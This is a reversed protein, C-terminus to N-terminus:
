NIEPILSYRKKTDISILNFISFIIFVLTSFVMLVQGSIIYSFGFQARSCEDEIFKGCFKQDFLSVCTSDQISSLSQCYSLRHSTQNKMYIMIGITADLVFFAVSVFVISLKIPFTSNIINSFASFICTLSALSAGFWIIPMSWDKSADYQYFQFLGFGLLGFGTLQVALILLFSYWSHIAKFKSYYTIETVIWRMKNNNNNNTVCISVVTNYQSIPYNNNNSKNNNKYDGSEINFIKNEKLLEEETGSLIKKNLKESFSNLQSNTMKLVICSEHVKKFYNEPEKTFMSFILFLTSMDKTFQIGDKFTFKFSSEILLKFIHNDIKLSLKRWLSPLKNSCLCRSIVGLQFRLTSLADVIEHSIDLHSSEKEVNREFATTISSNEENQEGEQGGPKNSSSNTSTAKPTSPKSSSNKAANSLFINSKNSSRKLYNSIRSSFNIFVIDVMRSIMKKSLKKYTMIITSFSSYTQDNKSPDDDSDDSDAGLYLNKNTSRRKRQMYQYIEIFLLQDDWERLICVVYNISNFVFCIERLQIEDYETMGDSTLSRWSSYIDPGRPVMTELEDRYKCLLDLQIKGFFEFCLSRDSLRAYRDTLARLLSILEYASQSPKLIDIDAFEDKYYQHWREPSRVLDQFCNRCILIELSLWGDFIKPDELVDVPVITDDSDQKKGVVGDQQQQQESDSDSDGLHVLSLGPPSPYLYVESLYKQFSFIEDIIHHFTKRSNQDHKALQGLLDGKFKENLRGVLSAIFWRQVDIYTISQQNLYTQLSHLFPTHDKLVKKIHHIPWEPKTVLNTVRKSQFHYKFGKLIPELLIDIAWLSSPLQFIWPSLTSSSSSTSPTSQQKNNNNNNNSKNTTTTTTTSTATTPLTSPYKQVNLQLIILNAFNNQFRRLNALIKDDQEKGPSSIGQSTNIPSSSSTSLPNNNNNNNSMTSQDENNYLSSSNNLANLLPQNQNNSNMISIWNIDKLSKKLEEKMKVELLTSLDGIMHDILKTLHYCPQEHDSDSTSSNIDPSKLCHLNHQIEVLNIFPYLSRNLQNKEIFLKIKTYFINILLLLQIYKKLRTVQNILQTFKCLTTIRSSTNTHKKLQLLLDERKAEMSELQVLTDNCEQKFSNVSEDNSLTNLINLISDREKSLQLKLKNCQSLSSENILNDNLFTLTDFTEIEVEDGDNEKGRSSNSTTTSSSMERKITSIPPKISEDNPIYERRKYKSIIYEEKEQLLSKPYIIKEKLRSEWYQNSISNGISEFLQVHSQEWCTDLIVSYVESMQNSGIKQHINCCDDCLFCGLSISGWEPDESNCDVCYRNGLRNRLQLIHQRRDVPVGELDLYDEVSMSKTLKGLQKKKLFPNNEKYDKSSEIAQIWQGVITLSDSAFKFTQFPTKLQFTPRKSNSLLKITSYKYGIIRIPQLETYSKFIQISNNDLVVWHRNEGCISVTFYNQLHLTPQNFLNTLNNQNGASNPISPTPYYDLGQIFLRVGKDPEALMSIPTALSLPPSSEIANWPKIQCKLDMIMMKKKRGIKDLIERVTDSPGFQLITHENFPPVFVKLLTVHRKHSKISTNKSKKGKFSSDKVSFDKAFFINPDDTIFVNQFPSSSSSTLSSSLCAPPPSNPFSRAISKALSNQTSEDATGGDSSTVLNPPNPLIKVYNKPFIGTKASDLTRGRWWGDTCQDTVIIFTDKTLELEEKDDAEYNYLVVAFAEENRKELVINKPSKSRLSGALLANNGGTVSKTRMLLQQSRSLSQSIPQHQQQHQQQQPRPISQTQALSQSLASQYNQHQVSKFATNQGDPRWNNSNTAKPSAISAASLPPLSGSSTSNSSTIPVNSSSTKLMSPSTGISLMSTPYFGSSTNLPGGSDLSNNSSLITALSSASDLSNQNNYNIMNRSAGAGSEAAQHHLRNSYFNQSPFLIKHTPLPIAVSGKHHQHQHLHQHLHLHDDDSIAMSDATSTSSTTSNQQQVSFPHIPVPATSAPGFSNDLVPQIPLITHQQNNNNIQQQQQKIKQHHHIFIIQKNGKMGLGKPKVSVWKTPQQPPNNHINVNAISNNEKLMIMEQQSHSLPSPIRIGGSMTLKRQLLPSGRPSPPSMSPFENLISSSRRLRTKPSQRAIAPQSM